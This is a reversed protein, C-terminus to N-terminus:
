FFDRVIGKLDAMDSAYFHATEWESPNGHGWGVLATPIGYERAGEVDHFRDGIMLIDSHTNEINMFRLAHAIVQAKTKRGQAADAGAIVDFYQAM